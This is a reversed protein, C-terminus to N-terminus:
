AAPETPESPKPSQVEVPEAAHGNGGGNTPSGDPQKRQSIVANIAAEIRDTTSPTPGSIQEVLQMDLRVPANVGLLNSRQEVIKLCLLAATENNGSAAKDYYASHLEDLRALELGHAQVRYATDVVPLMRNITTRVAAQSINFQAAIRRESQGAVRLRLMKTAIDDDIDDSM